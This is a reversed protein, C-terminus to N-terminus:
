LFVVGNNDIDFGMDDLNSTVGGFSNQEMDMGWLFEFGDDVKSSVENGYPYNDRSNSCQLLSLFTQGQSQHTQPFYLSSSIQQLQHGCHMSTKDTSSPGHSTSTELMMM